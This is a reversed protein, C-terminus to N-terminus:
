IRLVSFRILPPREVSREFPRTAAKTFVPPATAAIRWPLLPAVPANIASPAAQSDSAAAGYDCHRECLNDGPAMQDCPMQSDMSAMAHPRPMDGMCAHASVALQGFALTGLAVLAAIRRVLRNM